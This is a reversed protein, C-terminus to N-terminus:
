RTPLKDMEYFSKVSDKKLVFFYKEVAKGTNIDLMISGPIIEKPLKFDTITLTASFEISAVGKTKIKAM